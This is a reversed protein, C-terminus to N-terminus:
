EPVVDCTIGFESLLGRMQNAHSTRAMVYRARARHLALVTQQEPTKVPVFRM